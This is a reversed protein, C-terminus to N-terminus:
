QLEKTEWVMPYASLEQKLEALAFLGMCPYAGVTPVDGRLMKKVLLVVPTVPIELGSGDRALIEILMAKPDGQPGKGELRMFFGSHPSGLFKMAKMAPEILISLGNWDRILGKHACLSMLSLMRALGPVDVCSGFDMHSLTPYRAPFLDHDPIDCDVLYRRNVPPPFDHHRPRGLGFTTVRKGDNLISYPKGCYSLVAKLTALGLGSKLGACIGYDIGRLQSFNELMGDVIASSVAPLTSAGTILPIGKDRAAADLTSFKAVFDRGDAMDIYAVKAQLCAEAVTYDQGQFPGALHIVLDIKQSRLLGPLGPAGIDWPVIDIPADPKVDRLQRQAVKLRREDRGGLLLDFGGLQALRRSLRRGFQGSAGLVLVRSIPFPPMVFKAEDRSLPSYFMRIPM